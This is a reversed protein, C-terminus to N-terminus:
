GVRPQSDSAVTPQAVSKFSVLRRDNNFQAELGLAKALAPISIWTEDGNRIFDNVLACREASCVALSDSNPISKVAIGFDRGLASVAAYSVGDQEFVPSM